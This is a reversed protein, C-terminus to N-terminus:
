IDRQVPVVEIITTKDFVTNSIPEVCRLLFESKSNIPQTAQNKNDGETKPYYNIKIGGPGLLLCNLDYGVKVGYNLTATEGRRIINRGVPSLKMEPEPPPLSLSSIEVVNNNYDSETVVRSENVSAIVEYQGFPIDANITASITESGTLATLDSALVGVVQGLATPDGVPKIIIKWPVNSAGSIDTTGENKIKFQLDMSKYIGLFPNTTSSIIQLGTASLDNPPSPPADVQINATANASVSQRTVVVRATHSGTTTYSCTHSVSANSSEVTHDPGLDDCDFQYRILGTATGGTVSATLTSTLPSTGNSPSASLTATITPPDYQATVTNNKNIVVRCIRNVSESGVKRTSVCGTWSTFNNTGATAPATLDVNTVSPTIGSVTYNTNDRYLNNTAIIRVNSAGTSNVTLSVPDTSVQMEIERRAERSVPFSNYCEIFIINDDPYIRDVTTSSNFGGGYQSDIRFGGTPGRFYCYEADKVEWNVRTVGGVPVVLPNASFNRINPTVAVRLIVNICDSRLSDQNLVSFNYNHDGAWLLSTDVEYRGNTSVVRSNNNSSHCTTGGTRWERIAVAVDPDYGDGQLIIKEGKEVVVTMSGADLRPTLPDKIQTVWADPGQRPSSPKDIYFHESVRGRNTGGGYDYGEHYIPYVSARVLEGNDIAKKIDVPLSNYLPLTFTRDWRCVSKQVGNINETVLPISRGTGLVYVRSSYSGEYGVGDHGMTSDAIQDNTTITFVATCYIDSDPPYGTAQYGSYRIAKGESFRQGHTPSSVGCSDATCPGGGASSSMDITDAEAQQVGVLLALVFLWAVVVHTLWNRMQRKIM